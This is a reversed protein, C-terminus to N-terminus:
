GADLDFLRKKIRELKSAGMIGQILFYLFIGKFIISLMFTMPDGLLSLLQILVFMVTVIILGIKANSSSYIIGGVYIAVVVAYFGLILMPEEFLTSEYIGAIVTLVILIWTATKGASVKKEEVLAERKLNIIEAFDENSNRFSPNNDLIDNDLNM